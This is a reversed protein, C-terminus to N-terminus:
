GKRLVQILPANDILLIVPPNSAPIVFKFRQHVAITEPTKLKVQILPKEYTPFLNKASYKPFHAVIIAPMKSM